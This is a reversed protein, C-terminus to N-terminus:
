AVLAVTNKAARMGAFGVGAFGLLMMAWTAPEPIATYDYTVIVDGSLSVSPSQLPQPQIGYLVLGSISTPLTSQPLTAITGTDWKIDLTQGAAANTFINNPNHSADFTESVTNGSKSFSMWGPHASVVGGIVSLVGTDYGDVKTQAIAAGGLVAPLTESLGLIKVKPPVGYGQMSLNIDKWHVEVSNLTGLSTDFYTQFDPTPPVASSNPVLTFTDTYPATANQSWKYDFTNTIVETAAHAAGAAALAGVITLTRVLSHM